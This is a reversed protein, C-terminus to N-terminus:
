FEDGVEVWYQGGLRFFQTGAEFGMIGESITVIIVNVRIFPTGLDTEFGYLLSLNWSLAYGQDQVEDTDVWTKEDSGMLELYQLGDIFTFIGTGLFYALDESDELVNTCKLTVESQKKSFGAFVSVGGIRTAGSILSELKDFNPYFERLPRTVKHTAGAGLETWSSKTISLSFGFKKQGLCSRMKVKLVGDTFGGEIVFVITVNTDSTDITEISDMFRRIIFLAQVHGEIHTRSPRKGSLVKNAPELPIDISANDLQFNNQHHVVGRISFEAPRIDGHQNSSGSMSFIRFSPLLSLAEGLYSRQVTRIEIPLLRKFDAAQTSDEFKIVELEQIDNASSLSIFQASVHASAQTFLTTLSGFHAILEPSIPSFKENTAKRM